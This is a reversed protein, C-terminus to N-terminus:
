ELAGCGDKASIEPVLKKTGCFQEPCIKESLYEVDARSYFNLLLGTKKLSPSPLQQCSDEAQRWILWTEGATM